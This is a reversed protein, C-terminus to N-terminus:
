LEDPQEGDHTSGSGGDQPEDATAQKASEAVRSVVGGFYARWGSGAQGGDQAAPVHPEILEPQAKRRVNKRPEPKDETAQHASRAIYSGAGVVNDRASEMWGKNRPKYANDFAADVGATGSEAPALDALVAARPSLAAGYEKSEAEADESDLDLLIQKFIANGNDKFDIIQYLEGVPEWTGSDDGEASKRLQCFEYGRLKRNWRMKGGDVAYEEAHDATAQVAAGAVYAWARSFVNRKSALVPRDTPEAGDDQPPFLLDNQRELKAEEEANEGDEKDSAEGAGTEGDEEPTAFSAAHISPASVPATQGGKKQAKVQGGFKSAKAAVSPGALSILFKVETASMDMSYFNTNVRKWNSPDALDADKDVAECYIWNNPGVEKFGVLQGNERYIREKFPDAEAAAHSLSSSLAAIALLSLLSFKKM